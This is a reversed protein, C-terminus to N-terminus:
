PESPSCPSETQATPETGTLELRTQTSLEQHASPSASILGEAQGARFGFRAAAEDALHDLRALAQSMLEPDTHVLGYRAQNIASRVTALLYGVFALNPELLGEAL